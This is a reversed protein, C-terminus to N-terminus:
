VDNKIEIYKFTDIITVTAKIFVKKANNMFLKCVITLLIHKKNKKNVIKIYIQQTKYTM